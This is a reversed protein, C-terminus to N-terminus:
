EVVDAAVFLIPDLEFEYPGLAIARCDACAYSYDCALMRLHIFHVASCANHRLAVEAKMEAKAISFGHVQDFDLPRRCLLDFAKRLYFCILDQGNAFALSDDFQFLCLNRM